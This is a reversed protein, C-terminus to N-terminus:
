GALHWPLTRTGTPFFGCSHYVRPLTHHTAILVPVPPAVASTRSGRARLKRSFLKSFCARVRAGYTSDHLYQVTLLSQIKGASWAVLFFRCTGMYRTYSDRHVVYLLEGIASSTPFIRPPKRWFIAPRSVRRALHAVERNSMVDWLGDSALVLFPEDHDIGPVLCFSLTCPCSM